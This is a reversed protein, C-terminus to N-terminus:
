NETETMYSLSSSVYGRRLHYSNQLLLTSHMAQSANPNCHLCSPTNNHDSERFKQRAIGRIDCKEKILIGEHDKADGKTFM